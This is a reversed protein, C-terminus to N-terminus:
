LPTMFFFDFIEFHHETCQLGLQSLDKLSVVWSMCVTIGWEILILGVHKAIPELRHQQSSSM